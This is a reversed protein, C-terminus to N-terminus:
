RARTTPPRTARPTPVAGGIVGASTIVQLITTMPANSGTILSSVREERDPPADPTQTCPRDGGTVSRRPSRLERTSRLARGRTRGLRTHAAATSGASAPPLLRPEGSRSHRRGRSAQSSSKTRWGSAHGRPRSTPSARPPHRDWRHSRVPPRDDLIARRAARGAPRRPAIPRRTSPRATSSGRRPPPRVDAPADTGCRPPVPRFTVTSGPDAGRATLRTISRTSAWPLAIRPSRLLRAAVGPADPQVGKGARAERVTAGKCRPGDLGGGREVPERPRTHEAREHMSCPQACVDELAPRDCDPIRDDDVLPRGPRAERACPPRRATELGADAGACPRLGPVDERVDRDHDDARAPRPRSGPLSSARSRLRCPPEPPPRTPPLAGADDFVRPDHNAAGYALLSVDSAPITEGHLHLDHTANRCFVQVPSLTACSSTSRATCSATSTTSSRRRQEPHESLYLLSMGMAGSTTEYGALLM